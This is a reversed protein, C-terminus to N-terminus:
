RNNVVVRYTRRHEDTPVLFLSTASFRKRSVSYTGQEPGQRTARFTLEFSRLSGRSAGVRLDSVKILKMPVRVGTGTVWFSLGRRQAFRGRRYLGASSTFRRAIPGPAQPAALVPELTSAGVVVAAVGTAGAGLATRRTIDSM